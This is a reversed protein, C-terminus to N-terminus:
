SESGEASAPRIIRFVDGPALLPLRGEPVCVDGPLNAEQRGDAKLDLHGLNLLNDRVVPGVALIELEHEGLQVRDGPEPGDEGVNTRHLVSIDHLESPAQEGFFILLGHDLFAEVQGGVGTVESEYVVAAESSTM